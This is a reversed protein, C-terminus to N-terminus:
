DSVGNLYQITTSYNILTLDSRKTLVKYVGKLAM